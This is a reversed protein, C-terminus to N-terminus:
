FHSWEVSILQATSKQSILNKKDHRIPHNYNKETHSLMRRTSNLLFSGRNIPSM